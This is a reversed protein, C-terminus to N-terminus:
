SSLHTVPGDQIEFRASIGTGRTRRRHAVGSTMTDNFVQRLQDPAVLLRGYKPVTLTEDGVRM